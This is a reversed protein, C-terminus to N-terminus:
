MPKLHSVRLRITLLFGIAKVPQGTVMLTDCMTLTKAPEGMVKTVESVLIINRNSADEDYRDIDSNPKGSIFAVSPTLALDITLILPLTSM